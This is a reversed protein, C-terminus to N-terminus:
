CSSPASGALWATLKARYKDQSAPRSMELGNPTAQEGQRGTYLQQISRGLAMAHVLEDAARAELPIFAVGVLAPEAM